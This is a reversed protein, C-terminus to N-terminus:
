PTEETEEQILTFHNKHFTLLGEAQMRSLEASLGSREVSLYDALQQRSFLIDFSPGRRQAEASLYSLLKARTTRQSLHAAKENLRLNKVALDALLNQLIASHHRCASPCLGLLRRVNLWLVASEAQAVVSVTSVSGPACAFAEAFCQGPEIASLLNRNGWFDEQIIFAAGAALLALSEVAEGARLIYEGKEYRAPKAELCTLVSVLDEPAVGAFLRARSLVPLYEKM